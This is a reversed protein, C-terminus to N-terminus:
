ETPAKVRGKIPKIGHFDMVLELRSKVKSLRYIVRAHEHATARSVKLSKAIEAETLPTSVLLAMVKERIPNETKM